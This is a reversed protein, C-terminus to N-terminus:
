DAGGGVDKINFRLDTPMKRSLITKPPITFSLNTGEAKITVSLGRWDEIEMEEKGANGFVRCINEAAARTEKIDGEPSFDSVQAVSISIHVNPREKPPRNFWDHLTECMVSGAQGTTIVRRSRLKDEIVLAYEKPTTVTVKNGLPSSLTRREGGRLRCGRLVGEVLLRGEYKKKTEEIFEAANERNQGGDELCSRLALAAISVGAAAGTTLWLMRRRSLKEHPEGEKRKTKVM